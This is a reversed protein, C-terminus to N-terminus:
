VIANLQAQVICQKARSRNIGIDFRSQMLNSIVFLLNILHMKNWWWNTAKSYSMIKFLVNFNLCFVVFMSFCEKNIILTNQIQQNENGLKTKCFSIQLFFTQYSSIKKSEQNSTFGFTSQWGTWRLDSLLSFSGAPAFSRFANCNLAPPPLFPSRRQPFGLASSRPIVYEM